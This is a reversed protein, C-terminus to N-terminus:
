HSPSNILHCQCKRQYGGNLRGVDSFTLSSFCFFLVEPLEWVTKMRLILENKMVQKLWFPQPHLESCSKEVSNTVRWIWPHLWVRQEKDRELLKTVNVLCLVGAVLLQAEVSSRGWLNSSRSSMSFLGNEPPCNTEEVISTLVLHGFFTWIDLMLLICKRRPTM